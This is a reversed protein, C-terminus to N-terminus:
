AGEMGIFRGDLFLEETNRVDLLQYLENLGFESLSLKHIESLMSGYFEPTISASPFLNSILILGTDQSNYARIKLDPRKLKLVVITKWVDGTWWGQREPTEAKEGPVRSAMPLELPLCDHIAVLADHRSYKEVNLFDRLLFEAHHLGDLFSFHIPSKLIKIPNFKDFFLDSPMQYFSCFEKEGIVDSSIQFKPDIAISPCKSLKLTQGTLTGIELYNEPFFDNHIREIVNQYFMGQHNSKPTQNTMNVTSGRDDNYDGNAYKTTATSTKIVINNSDCNLFNASSVIESYGVLLNKCYEYVHRQLLYKDFFRQGEDAITKYKGPNLIENLVVEIVDSDKNIPVYHKMPILNKFYFLESTSKYKLLVCRSKLSIVVRSCTAGNGDMSILFKNKFQENWGITKQGGFGLNELLKETKVSDAQVIKPLSFIVERCNRFFQASVIRPVKNNLVDDVSIPVLGTTSGVFIALNKKDEYALEDKYSEYFDFALFDIDPFLLIKSGVNRQFAFAPIDAGDFGEDFLEFAFRTSFDLGFNLVVNQFFKLYANKRYIYNENLTPNEKEEVSIKRDHVNFVATFPRTNNYETIKKNIFEASFNKFKWFDLEQKLADDLNTM